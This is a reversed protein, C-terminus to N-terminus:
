PSINQFRPDSLELFNPARFATGYIAKFTSKEFPDYILRWARWTTPRSSTGDNIRLASVGNLHLEPKLLEVDGEAYVGYSERTKLVDSLTKGTGTDYTLDEQHFDDRYEGGLTFTDKDWLEKKLQLESGWWEGTQDEQYLM